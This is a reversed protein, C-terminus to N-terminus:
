NDKESSNCEYALWRDISSHEGVLQRRQSNASLDAKCSETMKFSMKYIFKLFKYLIQTRQDNGAM